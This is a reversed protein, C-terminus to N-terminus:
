SYLYSPYVGLNPLEKKQAFSSPKFSTLSLCPVNEVRVYGTTNNQTHSVFSIIHLTCILSFQLHNQVLNFYSIVERPHFNEWSLNGAERTVSCKGNTSGWRQIKNQTKIAQHTRIWKFQSSFSLDTQRLTYCHFYPPWVSMNEIQSIFFFAKEQKEWIYHQDLNFILASVCWWDFM